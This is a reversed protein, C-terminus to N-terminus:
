KAPSRGAAPCSRLWVRAEHPIRAKWPTELPRPSPFPTARRDNCTQCAAVLNALAGTGGAAIFARYRNYLQIGENQYHEIWRQEASTLRRADTRAGAM